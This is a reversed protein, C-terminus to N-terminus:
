YRPGVTAPATPCKAVPRVSKRTSTNKTLRLSTTAYFTDCGDSCNKSKIVVFILCIATFELFTVQVIDAADLRGRLRTDPDRQALVMRIRRRYDELLEGLAEVDAAQARELLQQHRTRNVM